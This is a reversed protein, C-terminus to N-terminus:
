AATPIAKPALMPLLLRWEKSTLTRSQCPRQRLLPRRRPPLRQRIATSGPGHEFSALSSVLVFLLITKKM